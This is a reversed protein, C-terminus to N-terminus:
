AAVGGSEGGAPLLGDVRSQPESVRIGAQIRMYRRDTETTGAWFGWKENYLAWGFCEALMPCMENCAKRMVERDSPNFDGTEPAYYLAPDITACPESGTFQPYAPLDTATNRRQYPKRASV